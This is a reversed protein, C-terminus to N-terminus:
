TTDMSQVRVFDVVNYSLSSSELKSHLFALKSASNPLRQAQSVTSLPSAATVVVVAFRWHVHTAM